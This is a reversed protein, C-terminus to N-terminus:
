AIPAHLGRAKVGREAQQAPLQCTGVQIDKASKSLYMCLHIPTPNRNTHMCLVLWVHLHICMYIHTYIHRHERGLSISEM